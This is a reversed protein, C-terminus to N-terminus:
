VARSTGKNMDGHGSTAFLADLIDHLDTNNQGITSEEPEGNGTTDQWSKREPKGTEQLALRKALELTNLRDDIYASLQDLLQADNAEEKRAERQRVVKAEPQNEVGFESAEPKGEEQELGLYEALEALLEDGDEEAVTTQDGNSKGTFDEGVENEVTTKSGLAREEDGYREELTDSHQLGKQSGRGLSAASNLYYRLMEPTADLFQDQEGLGRVNPAVIRPPGTVPEAHREWDGIASALASLTQPVYPEEVNEARRKVAPNHQKWMDPMRERAGVRWQNGLHVNARAKERLVEAREKESMAELLATVFDASIEAEEEQRARDMAMQAERQDERRHAEEMATRLSAAIKDEKMDEEEEKQQKERLEKVWHLARLVDAAKNENGRELGRFHEPGLRGLPLSFCGCCLMSLVLYLAVQYGM